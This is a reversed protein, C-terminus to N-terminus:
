RGFARSQGRDGMGDRAARDPELIEIDPGRDGPQSPGSSFEGQTGSNREGNGSGMLEDLIPGFGNGRPGARAPGARAFSASIWGVPDMPSKKASTQILDLVRGCDDGADKLWKGILPRAQKESVGMSLLAPLGATWLKQRPTEPAAGTPPKKDADTEADSRKTANPQTRNRERWQKAREAAGDERKPQRKEWGSLRDGDLTKGQMAERIATVAQTEVDLAAAVDEDSWNSLEGRETANAGANTMMFMFVAMVEAIPRGARKAIVRWKPDTPMDEWLRVWNAM